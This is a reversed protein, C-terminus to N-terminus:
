SYEAVPPTGGEPPEEDDDKKQLLLAQGPKLGQQLKDKEAQAELAAIFEALVEDPMDSLHKITLEDDRKEVWQGLERAIYESEARLEGILKTDVATLKITGDKNRKTVVIHGLKGGPINELEPDAGRERMIQRIEGLVEVHLKARGARTVMGELPGLERVVRDVSVALDRERDAKIEKIRGKIDDRRMLVSANSEQTRKSKGGFGAAIYAPVQEAGPLSMAQAFREHKQNSLAPV